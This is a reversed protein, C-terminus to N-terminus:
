AQAPPNRMDLGAGHRLIAEVPPRFGHDANHLVLGPRLELPARSGKVALVILRSAPEGGRPHIPLLLVGGFRGALAPLLEQLADPRHILTITGGPRLMSAAFRLWRDLAGAPMANAAAKQAGVAPTGRGEVHYPPNALVHEFSEALGSLEPTEGLPRAVDAVVVRAREDFGNLAINRRALDALGSDREVLTIDAEPQRCAVALGVVGVGAGVDLVREGSKAQVTAALLIADIGARYGSDPQLIRLAGGLFADETEASTPPDECASADTV